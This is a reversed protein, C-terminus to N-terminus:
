FGKCYNKKSSNKKGRKSEKTQDLSKSTERGGANIKQAAKDKVSGGM